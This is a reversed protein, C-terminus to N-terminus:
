LARIEAQFVSNNDTLGQSITLVYHNDKLIVVGAGVKTNVLM